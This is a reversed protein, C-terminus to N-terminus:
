NFHYNVRVIVTKHFSNTTQIWARVVPKWLAIIELTQYFLVVTVTNTLLMKLVEGFAINHSENTVYISTKFGVVERLNSRTMSLAEAQTSRSAGRLM